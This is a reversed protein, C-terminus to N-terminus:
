KSGNITAESELYKDGGPLYAVKLWSLTVKDNEIKVEYGDEIFLTELAKYIEISQTKENNGLNIDISMEFVNHSIIRKKVIEICINYLQDVANDLTEKRLKITERYAQAATFHQM